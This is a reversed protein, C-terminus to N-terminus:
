VRFKRNLLNIARADQEAGTPQGISSPKISPLTNGATPSTPEHHLLASLGSKSEAMSVASRPPSHSMARNTPSRALLLSSAGTTPSVSMVPAPLSPKGNAMTGLPPLSLPGSLKRVDHSMRPDVMGSDQKMSPPYEHTPSRVPEASSKYPSLSSAPPGPPYYSPPHQSTATVPTPLPSTTYHQQPPLYSMSPPGAHPHVHPHGHPHGHHPHVHSVMHPAVPHGYYPAGASYPNAGYPPTAVPSPPYTPYHAYQPQYPPMHPPMQRGHHIPPGHIHQMYAQMAIPAKAMAASSGNECWTTDPYMGKPPVIQRLAPDTTPTMLNESGPRTYYSILHLHQGNQATISFSQKMLGDPKYRYGEPENSDQDDDSGRGSDPTRGSNRKSASLPANFGNSRKGEMERYTLFSGSVRSASWSKGDTWRRMGAEREDWVFVSGPRIAQREKESLRRQVRPLLGVRCAEFLKIADAPTRVIGYYTEMRTVNM